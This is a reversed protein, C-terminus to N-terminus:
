NATGGQSEAPVSFDYDQTNIVGKDNVIAYKTIDSDIEDTWKVRYARVEIRQNCGRERSQITSDKGERGETGGSEVKYQPPLILKTLYKQQASVIEMAAKKVNEKFGELHTDTFRPKEFPTKDCRLAELGTSRDCQLKAEAAM